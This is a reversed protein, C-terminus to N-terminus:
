SKSIQRYKNYPAYLSNAVFAGRENWLDFDRCILCNQIYSIKSICTNGNNSDHKMQLLTFCVAVCSSMIISCHGVKGGRNITSREATIM